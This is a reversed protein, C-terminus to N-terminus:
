RTIRFAVADIFFRMIMDDASEPIYKIRSEVKRTSAQVFRMLNGTASYTVVNDTTVTLGTGIQEYQGTNWNKLEVVQRFGPTQSKSEVMVALKLPSQDYATTEVVLHVPYDDVEQALDNKLVLYQNDNSALSALNGSEILGVPVGFAGPAKVRTTAETTDFIFLGRNIDSAIVTGSPFFPYNSWTGEYIVPDGGPYTDFFGTRNPLLPNNSMDFIQLGSTYNTQFIFGDQQYENHDIAMSGSTFTGVFQPSSLNSVDIVISRSPVNLNDEDFEDNLYLYRKDDSLWGQHCYGINPYTATSMLIPTNKNTMDFIQVGRSTSFGFFIQKGAYPGSTYTVVHAEHQYNTTMSSPGVRVPNSPNALSFCMTTGTGLNSGCTYLFGSVPDVALTHTRGPSTITRVLTVQHNDINSLDMVQIGTNTETVAYAYNGYVKVDGWLNDTHPISAFWVANAPDTVEVFAIKNSLGMLAYERGSPSTYGWCSNGNASSFTALDFQKKLVVNQSTYQAACLASLALAAISALLPASRIRFNNSM